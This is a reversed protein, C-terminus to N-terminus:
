NNKEDKKDKEDAKAFHTKYWDIIRNWKDLYTAKDAAAGLGHGDNWYNM